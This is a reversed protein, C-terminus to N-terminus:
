PGPLCLDGGMRAGCAFGSPCEQVTGCAVGCHDPTADDNTDYICLGTGPGAFVCDAHRVCPPSCFGLRASSSEYICDAGDPCATSGDCTSGLGVGPRYSGGSGSAGGGAGGAGAAGAGGGAGSGGGGSRGGGGGAGSAGGAGGSSGAGGASAGSGATGSGAGGASGGSGGAGGGAAGRMSGGAGAGGGPARADESGCGLVLAAGFLVIRLELAIGKM